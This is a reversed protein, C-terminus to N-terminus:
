LGATKHIGDIRCVRVYVVVSNRPTFVVWLRYPVDPCQTTEEVEYVDLTHLTEGRVYKRSDLWIPPSIMDHNMSSAVGIIVDIWAVPLLM